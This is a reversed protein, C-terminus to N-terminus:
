LLNLKLLCHNLSYFYNLTNKSGNLAWGEENRLGDGLQIMQILCEHSINDLQNRSEILKTFGNQWFRSSEFHGLKIRKPVQSSFNSQFQRYQNLWHVTDRLNVPVSDFGLTVHIMCTITAAIVLITNMM